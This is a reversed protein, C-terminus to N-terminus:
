NVRQTTREREKEWKTVRKNTREGEKERKTLRKTVKKECNTDGEIM